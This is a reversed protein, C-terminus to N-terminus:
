ENLPVVRSHKGVDEQVRRRTVEGGVLKVLAIIEQVDPGHGPIIRDAVSVM